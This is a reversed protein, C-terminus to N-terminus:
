LDFTLVQNDANIIQFPFKKKIFTNIKERADKHVQPDKLGHKYSDLKAVHINFFPYKSTKGEMSVFPLKVKANIIKGSTKTNSITLKYDINLRYEAEEIKSKMYLYNDIVEKNKNYYNDLMVKLDDVLYNGLAFETYVSKIKFPSKM